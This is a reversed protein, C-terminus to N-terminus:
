ISKLKDEIDNIRCKIEPASDKQLTILIEEFTKKVMILETQSKIDILRKVLILVINLAEKKLGTHPIGPFVIVFTHNTTPLLSFTLMVQLM